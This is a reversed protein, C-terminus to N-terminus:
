GDTPLTDVPIEAVVQWGGHARPGAAFRGGLSKVREELALLGVRTTSAHVPAHRGPGNIVSTVVNPGDGVVTVEASEADPVHRRVNSLAEIVIRAVTMSVRRPLRGQLGPEVELTVPVTGPAAFGGVIRPLDGLDPAAEDVGSGDDLEHLARVTASLSALARQGTLEIHCLAERERGPVVQGVQAQIVM